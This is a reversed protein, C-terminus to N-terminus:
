TYVGPLARSTGLEEVIVPLRRGDPCPHSTINDLDWDIPMDSPQNRGIFDYTHLTYADIPALDREDVLFDVMQRVAQRMASGLDTGYSLVVFHEPTLARLTDIDQLSFLVELATAVSPNDDIVLVTPM